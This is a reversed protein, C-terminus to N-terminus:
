GSVLGTQSKGRLKKRQKGPKGPGGRFSDLPVGLLDALRCAANFGIDARANELLWAHQRRFGLKRALEATSGIGARVRARKLLRGQFTKM